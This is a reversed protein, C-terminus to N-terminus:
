ALKALKNIIEEPYFPRGDYKLIKDKIEIGTKMRILDAMQGNHNGEIDVIRKRTSLYDSVFKKPFPNIYNLHLYNTRLSYNTTQLERIAELVPGKTSGWGVLTLEADPNGYVSPDPIHNEAEELKKMRKEIMKKTNEGDENSYGHIDHEDSNGRFVGGKRGIIGRPSIGDPSFQYRAFDTMKNQEEETLLKGRDITIKAYDLFPTSYRTEMLAKDVLVFTPTQYRDALNLAEATLYFAEEPDGPALVLRPFEGQAANLIFHLDAQATWTPLGTAPGPRMGMIIVVPTELMGALGTGEVMLSFGGGATAVMSRVGTFGAGVAMNIGAIEDEPQKYIFGGKEQKAAMYALLGNIPTMPYAAFFKVGGAIAGLGIAEAGTLVLNKPKEKIELKKTSQSNKQVYDYGAQAANVNQAVVQEGKKAFQATLIDTLYELPLGFAALTAGLAVTNRMLMGAGVSIAIKKLPVSLFHIQSPYKTKDIQYEVGDFIVLANPTLERIHFDITERNLAVLIDVPQWSAHIPQDSFTVSIVNHGGRILSPYDNIENIYYGARSLIRSFTQGASMIGFGAEGGIKWTM